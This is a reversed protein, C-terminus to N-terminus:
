RCPDEPHPTNGWEDARPASQTTVMDQQNRRMSEALDRMNQTQELSGGAVIEWKGESNRAVGFEVRTYPEAIEKGWSYSTLRKFTAAVSIAHITRTGEQYDRDAIANLEGYEYSVTGHCTVPGPAGFRAEIAQIIDDRRPKRASWSAQARQAADGAVLHPRVLVFYGAILVATLLAYSAARRARKTSQSTSSQTAGCRKCTGASHSVFGCRQCKM